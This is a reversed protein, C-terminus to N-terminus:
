GYSVCTLTLFFVVFVGKLFKHKNKTGIDESFPLLCIANTIGLVYAYTM